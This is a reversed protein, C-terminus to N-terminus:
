CCGAYLARPAIRSRSCTVDRENSWIHPPRVVSVEIQDVILYLTNDLLSNRRRLHVVNVFLLLSQQDNPMANVVADNLICNVLPPIM